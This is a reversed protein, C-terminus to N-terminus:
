IFFLRNQDTQVSSEIRWFRGPNGLRVAAALTAVLEKQSRKPRVLFDSEPQRDTSILLKTKSAECSSCQIPCACHNPEYRDLTKVSTRAADFDHKTSFM